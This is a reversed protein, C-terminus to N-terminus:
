YCVTLKLGTLSTFRLLFFHAKGAQSKGGGPAAVFSGSGLSLIGSHNKEVRAATRAMSEIRGDPSSIRATVRLVPEALSPRTGPEIRPEASISLFM